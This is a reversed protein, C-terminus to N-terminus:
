ESINALIISVDSSLKMKCHYVLLYKQKISINRKQIGIRACCITVAGAVCTACCQLLADNVYGNVLPMCSKFCADTSITSLKFVHQLYQLNILVSM